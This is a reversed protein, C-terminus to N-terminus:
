LPVQCIPCQCKRSAHWASAGNDDVCAVKMVDMVVVDLVLDEGTLGSLSRFGSFPTRMTLKASFKGPGAASIRQSCIPALQTFTSGGGWGLEGM